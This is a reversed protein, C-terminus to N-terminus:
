KKNYMFTVYLSNITNKQWLNENIDFNTINKIIMSIALIM